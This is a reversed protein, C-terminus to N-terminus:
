KILDKYKITSSNNLFNLRKALKKGITWISPPYFYISKAIFYLGRAINGGDKWWSGALMIYTKSYCKLEFWFNKYLKESSYIELAKKSDKELVELSRSMSGKLIRYKWLAKRIRKGKFNKALLISFHQDALNSLDKHFRLKYNEICKRKIILNSCPGPICEGNWSLIDELINSDKGRPAVDIINLNEDANWMDSFVFDAAEKLAKVKLELNNELMYDDADLFAIYSGKSASIGVNRTDSVGSNPKSILKVRNDREAINQVIKATNDTSGDNILIVEFDQYSQKFVSELTEEIYKEANYAPIIVSVTDNHPVTIVLNLKQATERKCILYNWFSSPAIENKHIITSNENDIEFFLYGKDKFFANIEEFNAKDWVNILFDPKYKTLFDGMSRLIDTDSTAIDIKILDIKTLNNKEILSKLTITKATVSKELKNKITPFEHKPKSYISDKDIPKFTITEENTASVISPLANIKYSNLYANKLLANYFKSVPEFAYVSNNPNISKATLSFLGSGAGVDIVTTSSECLKQWILLSTGERLNNLGKWFLDRKEIISPSEMKFIGGNINKIELIGDYHLYKYVKDSPNIKKFLCLIQKKFPLVQYCLKAPSKILKLLFKGIIKIIIPPYHFVSIIIFRLGRIKNKGNKWWSGALMLYMNGYSRRKFFFNKWITDKTYLEHAKITDKELLKISKSMSYPHVRYKLLPKEIHAGRFNLSLLVTFHQDALNSLSNNFRIKKNEFCSRSVVICSPVVNDKLQLIEEHLKKTKKVQRLSIISLNSDADFYNSYVFDFGEDLVKIKLELNKELWYDDADLFAIYDGKANEIGINRSDSVGSNEKDILKIRSDKISLIIDRTNDTSGDNIVIIEFDQHTQKLVSLITQEIHKEANYAPIIVSVKKM